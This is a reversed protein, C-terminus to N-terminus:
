FLKCLAARREVGLSADHGRCHGVIDDPRISVWGRDLHDNETQMTTKREDGLFKRTVRITWPLIDAMALPYENEM